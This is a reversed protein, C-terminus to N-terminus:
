NKTELSYVDKFNLDRAIFVNVHDGQNKHLTPPISVTQKLSEGAMTAAAQSTSNYTINNNSGGSGVGQVAGTVADDIVSLLIAAGFREWFHRDIYGTVGSRGLADTGPSDLDILVGQPTKARTWLIFIRAQGQKLDSKYEGILKSGRDLLVVQGNDGYIDRTLVCSTMGPVSSDLATEMVCDLFTGKTITFDRDELVTAHTSPTYSSRLNESIDNGQKNSDANPSGLNPSLSGGGSKEYLVPSNMRREGLTEKKGTQSQSGDGPAPPPDLHSGLSDVTKLKVPDSNQTAEPVALPPVIVGATLQRKGKKNEGDLNGYKIKGEDARAKKREYLASYYKLLLLATVLVVFTIIAHNILRSQISAGRNVSPLGREGDVYTKEDTEVADPDKERRFNRFINKIDM